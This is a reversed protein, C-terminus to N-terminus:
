MKQPEDYGNVRAKNQSRGRPICSSILFRAASVNIPIYPEVTM